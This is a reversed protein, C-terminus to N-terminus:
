LAAGIIRRPYATAMRAVEDLIRQQRLMLLGRVSQAGSGVPVEEARRPEGQSEIFSRKVDRGAMLRIAAGIPPIDVATYPMQTVGVVDDTLNVLSPFTARYRIRIPFGPFGGEYVVLGFGSEFDDFESAFGNMDRLLAYKTILPWTRQPGTLRYRVDIVDQIDSIVDPLDYGYRTPNFTLDETKVAFLGVQPSSLDFIEENIAQFVRFSSFKPRVTVPANILHSAPTSSNAGRICDTINKGTSDVAFVQIEELDICVVCGATIGGMSYTFPITTVSANIASSIRNTEEQFNTYLFGKTRDILNQATPM